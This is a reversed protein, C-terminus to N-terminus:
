LMEVYLSFPAAPDLEEAGGWPVGEWLHVGLRAGREGEEKGRQGREPSDGHRRGHLELEPWPRGGMSLELCPQKEEHSLWFLHV